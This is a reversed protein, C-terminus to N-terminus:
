VSRVKRSCCVWVHCLAWTGVLEERSLARQFCKMHITLPM